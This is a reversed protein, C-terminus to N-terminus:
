HKGPALNSGRHAWYVYAQIAPMAPLLVGALGLISRSVSM